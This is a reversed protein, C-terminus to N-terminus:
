PLITITGASGDVRIRTGDVIRSTANETGVVAPISYERSVVAAHCLLGGRDTVIGKLLPLVINFAATTARTVLVDGERIRSFDSSADVIRAPGEVLGGSVGIGEIPSEEDANRSAGFLAGLSAGTAAELRASAAPLWELPLPDGPAEGLLPPMAEFGVEARYRARETLEAGDPGGNGELIACVEPWSAEVLHTHGELRGAAKLRTGAALLARRAVGYAWLDGYMAREERIRYTLRAEELVEDFRERSGPEVDARVAATFESLQESDSAVDHLVGDLEATIGAVVLGPLEFPCTDGVDEGNVPRYAIFSVVERLVDGAEGPLVMIQELASAPDDASLLTRVAPEKAIADLRGRLHGTGLADPTSGQLLRLVDAVSRGSLATGQVILDGTPVWTTWNYTHHLYIGRSVNRTCEGLYSVLGHTDLSEPEVALLRQNEAVAGPKDVNDWHELEARWIRKEFTQEALRLREQVEPHEAMLQDWVDRPPHQTAGEPAAVPSIRYYPFGAVWAWDLSKLLSGYRHLCGAFAPAFEDLWLQQFYMSGSTTLHSKDLIWAGPGPPEFSSSTKASGSM